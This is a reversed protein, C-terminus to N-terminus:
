LNDNSEIALNRDIYEKVRKCKDKTQYLISIVEGNTKEIHLYNDKVWYRFVNNFNINGCKLSIWM